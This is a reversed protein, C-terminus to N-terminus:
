LSFSDAVESDHDRSVRVKSDSSKGSAVFSFKRLSRGSAGRAKEGEVSARLIKRVVVSLSEREKFARHRLAEWVSEDIQIQTRIM